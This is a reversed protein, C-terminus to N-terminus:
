MIDWRSYLWLRERVSNLPQKPVKPYELVQLNFLERLYMCLNGMRYVIPEMRNRGKM